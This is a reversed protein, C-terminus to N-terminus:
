LEVWEVVPAQQILHLTVETSRDFNQTREDGTLAVEFQELFGDALAEEVATFDETILHVDICIQEETGIPTKQGLTHEFTMSSSIEVGAYLVGYLDFYRRVDNTWDYFNTM